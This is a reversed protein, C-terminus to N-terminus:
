PRTSSASPAAESASVQADSVAPASAESAAKAPVRLTVAEPRIQQSLREPERGDAAGWGWRSFAGLNWGALALNLVVLAAILWSRM